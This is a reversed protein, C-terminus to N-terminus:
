TALPSPCPCPRRSHWGPGRRPTRASDERAAMRADDAQRQELRARQQAGAPMGSPQTARRPRSRRPARRAPRPRGSRRLASRAARRRQADARHELRPQDLADRGASDRTSPSPPSATISARAAPRSRPRAASPRPRARPSGRLRAAGLEGLDDGVSASAPRRGRGAPATGPSRGAPGCAARARARHARPPRSTRLARRPASRRSRRRRRRAACTASGPSSATRRRRGPAARPARSRPPARPPARRDTRWSMPPEIPISKGVRAPLASRWATAAAISAASGCGNSRVATLPKPKRWITRGRGRAESGSSSRASGTPAAARGQEAADLAGRRRHRATWSAAARADGGPEVARGSRTASNDRRVPTAWRSARHALGVGAREAAFGGVRRVLREAAAAAM